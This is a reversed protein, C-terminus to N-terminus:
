LYALRAPVAIRLLTQGPLSEMSYKGGIQAARRRMAALGMHGPRGGAALVEAPIGVGDDGIELLLEKGSYTIRVAISNARAHRVANRLAERGIVFLEDKVVLHLARSVGTQEVRIPVAAAEREVLKDFMDVLEDESGHRLSQVRDRGEMIADNANQIVKVMRDRAEPQGTMQDAANEASLIVGHMSQLVTDHLEVAIREREATRAELRAALQRTLYRVRSRYLLYLLGALAVGCAIRFWLSQTLTPAVVVRMAVDQTSAVGDENLVRLHFVYEGAGVNTYFASRRAGAQQWHPDVGELWYEFRAAEPARLLPATYDIRFRESGAPLLVARSAPYIKDDAAVAVLVPLPVAYNPRLLATDVQMVGGTGLLWLHRGDPSMLSPWRTEIVARGAYGDLAGLLEYRVPQTPDDLVRQWDAARVHLLGASGNLWRDGDATKALGSVNRLVDPNAATLMTLKGNKFIGSGGTGSLLPEGSLFVSAAMGLAHIDYTALKDNDYFVLTGDGTALWLQGEGAPGSQFIKAPLNFASAPLWQGDRWGILGTELTATWLVKGDDLIGLMHYDRPQGDAGPPLPIVQKGDARWVEISRKGGVLVAGKRGNAVLTVPAPQALQPAAGVGLRWLSGSVIDAAWIKGRGDTALSFKVGAGPLGSQRLRNRRFRDIGNETAIWINGERDELITQTERGSLRHVDGVREVKGNGHPRVRCALAPCNLLWLTGERDFMGGFTSESYPYPDPRSGTPASLLRVDDAGRVQWVAGDPSILLQGGGDTMKAFRGTKRDLRWAAHDSGAWLGGQTDLLMSIGRSTRWEEGDDVVQWKGDKFHQINGAVVWMSGDSDIAIEGVSNRIPLPSNVTEVRGDPHLVSMGEAHYTIYLDGNPAARVLNIRDRNLGQQPPLQYREFRVGDFRYLGDATGLWLWGDRTQAMSGIGSPAGEAGTWQTRSYDLLETDNDAALAHLSVAMCIAALSRGVYNCIM